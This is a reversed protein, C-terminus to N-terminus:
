INCGLFCGSGDGVHKCGWVMEWRDIGSTCLAGRRTCVPASTLQAINDKERALGEVMWSGSLGPESSLACM